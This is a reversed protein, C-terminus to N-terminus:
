TSMRPHKRLSDWLSTFNTNDQSAARKMVRDIMVGLLVIALGGAMGKGFLQSQGFGLVVDYGLAGGGVLGGIVVMSLVFLLGQNAALVLSTRAMPIQVKTIIQWTSSGSATAAEVTTPSVGKVGDAVLKIAIPAAFVIAAVIGTFRGPGFLGLVPILYVFPPMVQAADLIPRIIREAVKSRAMWVGMVVALLMVFITAVLVGALTVMTDYWLDTLYIGFLCVTTSLSAMVGGLVYSIALLALGTVYWPSNAVLDQLPNIFWTTVGDSLWTTQRSLNETVWDAVAQVRRAITSGLSSEPFEALSIYTRSLYVLVLTVLGAVGLVIRRMRVDGGGGRAANEARVSAVTTTRDLLVAIIVICVGAVFAPGVQNAVIGQVVPQGLGPGDVLAAIVVMSLAAMITQNIGVIITRKAMPLQVKVLRQRRNQGLSATAELTTPSVQRIGHAAIRVAPPLAYLVTAAIAVAPGLAFFLALPALYVFTPFTQLVDLVPTVITTGVKSNGIWVALPLGILLSIAVAFFIIILTDMTEPWYGLYGCALLGVATAVAMRWGAVALTAWSAIGLFGLWGIQPVPRPFAPQAILDQLWGVGSNFRDSLWGTVLMLVNSDRNRILDSKLETFWDHLGTVSRGPLYLIDNGRTISWAVVWLVIIALFAVLRGRSRLADVFGTDVTGSKTRAVTSSM